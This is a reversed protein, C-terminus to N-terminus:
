LCSFTEFWVTWRMHVDVYGFGVSFVPLVHLCLLFFLVCEMCGAHGLLILRAIILLKIYLFPVFLCYEKKVTLVYLLELKIKGEYVM